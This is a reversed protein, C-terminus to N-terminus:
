GLVGLARWIPLTHREFHQILESAQVAPVHGNRRLLALTTEYLLAGSLQPHELLVRAAAMQLLDAIVAGGLGPAALHTYGVGQLAGEALL